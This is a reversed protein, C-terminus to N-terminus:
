LFEIPHLLEGANVRWAAVDPKIGSEAGGPTMGSCLALLLGQVDQTQGGLGIFLHFWLASRTILHLKKRSINQSHCTTLLAM